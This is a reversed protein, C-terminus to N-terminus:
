VREIYSSECAPLLKAGNIGRVSVKQPRVLLGHLPKCTFYRKDKVSGDNRGNTTRLEVGLWAGDAFDVPGIYRVVGIESNILVNTGITLASPESKKPSRSTSDLRVRGIVKERIKRKFRPTSMPSRTGDVTVLSLDSDDDSEIRSGDLRPTLLRAIRTGPAFLGHNPECEFYRVNDVSGDNKGAPKCLEIGYWTSGPSFTTEGVFRVIGKRKDHLMVHDGVSATVGNTVKTKGTSLGTEVKPTVNSV